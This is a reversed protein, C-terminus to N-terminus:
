LAAWSSAYAGCSGHVVGKDNGVQDVTQGVVWDDSFDLSSERRVLLFTEVPDLIGKIGALDETGHGTLYSVKSEFM